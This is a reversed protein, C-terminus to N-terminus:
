RSLRTRWSGIFDPHTSTANAVVLGTTATDISALRSWVDETQQETM